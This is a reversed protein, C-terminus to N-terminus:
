KAFSGTRDAEIGSLLAVTSFVGGGQLGAFEEWEWSVALVFVFSVFSTSGSVPAGTSRHSEAAFRRRDSRLGDVAADVLAIGLSEEVADTGRPAADECSGAGTLLDITLSNAFKKELPEPLVLVIGGTLSRTVLALLSELLLRDETIDLFAQLCQPPEANGADHIGSTFTADSADTFRSLMHWFQLVSIVIGPAQAYFSIAPDSETFQFLGLRAPPLM